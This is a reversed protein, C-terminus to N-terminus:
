CCGLAPVEKTVDFKRTKDKEYVAKVQTSLKLKTLPEGLVQIKGTVDFKFSYQLFRRVKVPYNKSKNGEWAYTQEYKIISGSSIDHDWIHAFKIDVETDYQVFTKVITSDHQEYEM